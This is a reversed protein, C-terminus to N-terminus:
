VGRKRARRAEHRADAVSGTPIAQMLQGFVFQSEAVVAVKDLKLATHMLAHVPVRVAEEQFVRDLVHRLVEDM